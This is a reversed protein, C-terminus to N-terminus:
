AYLVPEGNPLILSVKHVVQGNKSYRYQLWVRAVAEEDVDVFEFDKSRDIAVDLPVRLGAALLFFGNRRKPNRMRGIVLWSLGYHDRVVGCLKLRKRKGWIRQALALVPYNRDVQIM